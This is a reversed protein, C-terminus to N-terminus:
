KVQTHLQIDPLPAVHGHLEFKEYNVWPVIPLTDLERQM